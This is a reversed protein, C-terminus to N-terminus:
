LKILKHLLVKVICLIIWGFDLLLFPSPSKEEIPFPFTPNQSPHPYIEFHPLPSPSPSLTLISGIGTGMGVRPNIEIGIGLLSPSKERIRSSARFSALNPNKGWAPRAGVPAPNAMGVRSSVWWKCCWNSSSSSTRDM